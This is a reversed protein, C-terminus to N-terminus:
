VPTGEKRRDTESGPSSADASMARGMEASRRLQEQARLESLATNFEAGFLILVSLCYLYVIAVMMGALGAYLATYNAFTSLYFAFLKSGAIIGVITIEVRIPM